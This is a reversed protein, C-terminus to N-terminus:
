PRSGAQYWQCGTSPPGLLRAPDQSTQFPLVVQEQSGHVALMPLGDFKHSQGRELSCLIRQLLDIINGLPTLLARDRLRITMSLSIQAEVWKVSNSSVQNKRGTM